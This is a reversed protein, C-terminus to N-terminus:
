VQKGDQIVTSLGEFNKAIVQTLATYQLQNKAHKAMEKLGCVM